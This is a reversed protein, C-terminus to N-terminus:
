GLYNSLLEALVLYQKEGVYQLYKGVRAETWLCEKTEKKRLIKFSYISDTKSVAPM